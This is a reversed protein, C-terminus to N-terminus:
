EEDGTVWWLWRHNLVALPWLIVGYGFVTFWLLTVPITAVAEFFVKAERLWVARAFFVVILFVTVACYLTLLSFLLQKPWGKPRVRDAVWGVGLGILPSAALGVWAAPRLGSDSALWFGVLGWFIGCSASLFALLAASKKAYVKNTSNMPLAM